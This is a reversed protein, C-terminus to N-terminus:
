QGEVGSGEEMGWLAPTALEVSNGAPDRLYISRGGRPWSIEREVEVGLRALRDRWAPIEEERVAFALHGPGRAGHPPVEGGPRETARPDFVLLVARGCRFFVHRGEVRAFRELGIVGAYFREAADLDEAYLATELVARPPAPDPRAGSM